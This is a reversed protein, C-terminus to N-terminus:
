HQCPRHHQQAGRTLASLDDEEDIDLSDADWFDPKVIRQLIVFFADPLRFAAATQACTAENTIADLTTDGCIAILGGIAVAAAIARSAGHLHRHGINNTFATNTANLQAITWEGIRALGAELRAPAGISENFRAMNAPDFIGAM